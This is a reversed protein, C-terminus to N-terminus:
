TNFNRIFHSRYNIRWWWGQSFTCVKLEEFAGSMQAGYPCAYM